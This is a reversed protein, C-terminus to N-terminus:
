CSENSNNSHGLPFPMSKPALLCQKEDFWQEQGAMKGLVFEQMTKDRHKREWTTSEQTSLPSASPASLERHMWHWTCPLRIEM